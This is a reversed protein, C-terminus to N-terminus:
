SGILKNRCKYFLSGSLKEFWKGKRKEQIGYVVDCSATQMKLFFDSLLEPEEELDCDILFVLDGNSEALGTMIAKHHGFNRSLDLIKIHRDKKLLSKTIELSTDPSGDNVFIIEYNNTLLKIQEIIRKYFEKLYPSSYYMTTVVSIKM